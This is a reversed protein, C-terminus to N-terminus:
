RGEMRGKDRGRERGVSEGEKKRLLADTVELATHSLKGIRRVRLCLDDTLDSVKMQQQLLKCTTHSVCAHVHCMYMFICM